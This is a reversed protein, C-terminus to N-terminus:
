NRPPRDPIRIGTPVLYKRKELVTSVPEPAWGAELEIAVPTMERRYLPWPTINVVWMWSRGFNLILPAIGISGRYVMYKM